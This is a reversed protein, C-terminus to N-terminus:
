GAPLAALQARYSADDAEIAVYLLDDNRFL